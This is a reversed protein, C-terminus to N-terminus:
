KIVANGKVIEGLEGIARAYLEELEKLTTESLNYKLVARIHATVEILKNFRENSLM